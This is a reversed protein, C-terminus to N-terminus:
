VGVSMLINTCRPLLQGSQVPPYLSPRDAFETLAFCKYVNEVGDENPYLLKKM